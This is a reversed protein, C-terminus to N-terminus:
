LSQRSLTLVVAPGRRRHGPYLSRRRRSQDVFFRRELGYFYLFMYGPNYSADARGRALWGLYTARCQPSIDSYGPWYPMGDGAKDTGTRAVSLSPDIYARCKDRYGYTNLLPPTGVYVMGGIDRGAVSATESSPVWGGNRSRSRTSTPTRSQERKKAIEALAPAASKGARVIESYDQKPPVYAQSSSAAEKAFSERSKERERAVRKECSNPKVPPPPSPAKQEDGTKALAKAATKRSRRKEQWWVLLVPVGFAFLMQAGASWEQLAATVVIMCLIFYLGYFFIIRFFKMRCEGNPKGGTLSFCGFAAKWAIEAESGRTTSRAPRIARGFLGIRGSLADRSANESVGKRDGANSKASRPPNRTM